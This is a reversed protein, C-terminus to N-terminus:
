WFKLLLKQKLKILNFQCSNKGVTVYNTSKPWLFIKITFKEYFKFNLDM